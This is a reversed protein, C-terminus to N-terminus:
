QYTVNFIVRKAIIVRILLYQYIGVYINLSEGFPNDKNLIDVGCERM